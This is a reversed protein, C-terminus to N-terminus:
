LEYTKKEIEKVLKELEERMERYCRRLTNSKTILEARKTGATSGAKRNNNDADKELTDCVSLMTKRKKRLDQLEDGAMKLKIIQDDKSQKRREEDLHM